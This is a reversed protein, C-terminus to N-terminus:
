NKTSIKFLLWLTINELVITICFCTPNLFYFFVAPSQCHKDRNELFVPNECLLFICNVYITREIVQFLSIKLYNLHIKPLKTSLRPTIRIFKVPKELLRQKINKYEQPFTVLTKNM